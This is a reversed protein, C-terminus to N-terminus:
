RDLSRIYAYLDAFDRPKLGKLLGAPMLSRNLSRKEEIDSAEIRFTQNFGNRLTVGDVSSYIALGTYTKGSTTQVLMTQYRPSVDRDPQLIATFLDDRSFRGAAGALDPGLARRGGHCQACSRKEFLKRGRAPDGTNWDVTALQQKFKAVDAGGTALLRAAEQPYKSTLWKTWAAIAARHSSDDAKSMDFGFNQGTNRRLIQLLRNRHPRERKDRGLRRIAKLLAFQERAESSAPLKHLAEASASLVELQGTSLANIFKTRDRPQPAAALVVIVANRVALNAYQERLLARHEANESDALLFVVDNTWPYEDTAQIRRAFADIATQWHERKLRALFLAHEPRGFDPRRVLELALDPDLKTHKVYMEGVRDDWNSDVKLQRSRLKADLAVFAGAIRKRQKLTRDVEIRSAVILHHIDTVPHSREDIKSLLRDLLAPNFPTLMSIVRSLELDIAEHGVPFVKAARIRLPDLRREYPKLNLRSAYGDYVAPRGTGPGVDGLALQMLRVADRKEAPRYSGEIVRMAFEAIAPEVLKQRTLSGIYLALQARLGVSPTLRAAQKVSDNPLRAIVRMATQRVFRDSDGLRAALAPLLRPSHYNAGVGLLAELGARRVRADSDKLFPLLTTPAPNAAHIRAYAWVARERVAAVTSRALAATTKEDIGGFLETLIEIARVRHPAPLKEDLAATLFPASRLRRAAPVWRARSWSSLPQPATLCTELDTAAQPPKRGTPGSYTIRYVGGRSGRGGVSVFLSGDPGVAVDTPAFGFQGIGTMFSVPQSTPVSGGAKLPLAIVRGFTWDLIFVAGRYPAPFQTHRYCAVGTPSGRGFSGVIPPMDADGGGRKWSRSYWGAHTAPLALFVRTPVYWPLSVDREGDSDFVFIDGSAGFAFDYSNRYGDSVIEGGTLDPKLRLLTGSQPDRIPSTALTAYRRNIGAFNGAVLYWWGDPGKRVAHTHHEGGTKMKLFVDPPGDARDDGNRDRYRLLGADGTCLLDNGHFYMGQAGSKPGDAFQRFSDAKGDGDRDILIRIYGPGSVVVRGKADVTMSFVDHALDDDAYLTATFGDPVRVGLKAPRNAAGSQAYVTSNPEGPGFGWMGALPSLLILFVPFRQRRGIPSIM